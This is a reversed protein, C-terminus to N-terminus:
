YRTIKSRAKKAKKTQMSSLSESTHQELHENLSKISHDISNAITELMIEFINESKAGSRFDLCNYWPTNKQGKIIPKGDSVLLISNANQPRELMYQAYVSFSLDANLGLTVKGSAELIIRNNTPSVRLHKYNISYIQPGVKIPYSSISHLSEICSNQSISFDEAEANQSILNPLAPLILSKMLWETRILLGSEKAISIFSSAPALDYEPSHSNNFQQEKDTNGNQSTLYHLNDAKLKHQGTQFSSLLWKLNTHLSLAEMSRISFAFAHRHKKIFSGISTSLYPLYQQLVSKPDEVRVLNIVDLESLQANEAWAYDNINKELHQLNVQIFLSCGELSFSHPLDGLITIEGNKFPLKLEFIAPNNGSILEWDAFIAEGRVHWSGDLDTFNLSKPLEGDIMAQSLQRNVTKIDPESDTFTPSSM